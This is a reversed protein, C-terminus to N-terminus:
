WFGGYLAALVVLVLYLFGTFAFSQGFRFSLWTCIVLGALSLGGPVALVLKAKLRSSM